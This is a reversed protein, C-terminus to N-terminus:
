NKKKKELSKPLKILDIGEKLLDKVEAETAKGYILKDASEGYHIKRAEEPFNKGVYEFKSKIEKDLKNMYKHYLSMNKQQNSKIKNSNISKNSKSGINPSMISKFIKTSDCFPCSILKKKLQLDFSSSDDFWAEFIHDFECRLDFLIM